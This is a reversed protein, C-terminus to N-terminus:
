AFFALFWGCFFDFAVVGTTIFFSFVDSILGDEDV